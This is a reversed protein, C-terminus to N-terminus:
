LRRYVSDSEEDEIVKGVAIGHVREIDVTGLVPATDQREDQVDVSATPCVAVLVEVAVIRASERFLTKDHHSRAVPEQGFGVEFSLQLVDEGGRIVYASVGRLPAGVEVVDHERSIRRTRMERKRGVCYTLAVVQLCDVAHAFQREGDATDHQRVARAIDVLKRETHGVALGKRHAFDHLPLIGAHHEAFVGLVVGDEGAPMVRVKENYGKMDRVHYEAFAQYRRTMEAVAWNLAGAAKKPDTVVPIMLHPIGNYVSLEVVKPDIMILKVEEPSAKYLISMILTNICVSKGSGTAGAILVHPMKAIDSVVVKGGIDKGVAFSVKSVSNKFESSELLDRLMVPSNEKNPVEIGVAAKGPIPAEIRIDAAALNLKIDDALGVIKSVKVGMEPQLEYRTVSPGCSVNTVTVQVGFNQLTQQLKMATERLSADSEGSHKAGRKLLSIPPYRYAKAKKETQNKAAAAVANTESAIEEANMKKKGPRSERVMEPEGTEGSSEPVKAEEPYDPIVTRADDEGRHIPFAPAQTDEPEASLERVEPSKKKLTTDFSVGEVHRDRRKQSKKDQIEGARRRIEDTRIAQTREKLRAADRKAKDYAKGSQSKVGKLASKGTIIVMCIIMLIIVAVYTGATGIAPTLVGALGQGLFGGKKDVLELFTCALILLLIWAGTKIYAQRNERNSVLFTVGGFLLFPIVYAALGFVLFLIDSFTGGIFGGFGFLSVLMLISVALTLWILIEDKLFSQTQKRGSTKKSGKKKSRSAM